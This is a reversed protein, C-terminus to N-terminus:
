GRRARRALSDKAGLAALASPLTMLAYATCVAAAGLGALYEASKMMKGEIVIVVLLTVFVAAVGALVSTLMIGMGAKEASHYDKAATALARVTLCVLICRALECFAALLFLIGEGGLSAGKPAYILLPLVLDLVWLLSGLVMWEGGGMVGGGMAGFGRGLGTVKSYCIILLVLHVGAVSVTAIAMGRARQPGAICFSVGILLLITCACGCIGPIAFLGESVSTAMGLLAFLALLGYM